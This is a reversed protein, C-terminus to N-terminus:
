RFEVLRLRLRHIGYQAQVAFGCAGELTSRLVQVAGLDCWNQRPILRAVTASGDFTHYTILNPVLLPDGITMNALHTSSRLKPRLAPMQKAQIRLNKRHSLLKSNFGPGLIGVISFRAVAFVASRRSCSNQRRSINGLGPFNLTTLALANRWEDHHISQQRQKDQALAGAAVM